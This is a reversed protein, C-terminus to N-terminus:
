LLTIPYNEFIHDSSIITLQQVIAQAIIIRDFPDKHHQPLSMLILIHEKSVPLIEIEDDEIKQIWKELSNTLEMKGNGIKIAMEWFSAISIYLKNSGNGITNLAKASLRPSGEYYWIM